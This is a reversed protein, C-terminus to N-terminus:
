ILIAGSCHAIRMTLEVETVLIPLCRRVRVETLRGDLWTMGETESWCCTLSVGRKDRLGKLRGTWKIEQQYGPHATHIPLRTPQPRIIVEKLQPLRCIAADLNVFVEHNEQDDEEPHEWPNIRLVLSVLPATRPILDLVCTTTPLMRRPGNFYRGNIEFDFDLATLNTWLNPLVADCFQQILEESTPHHIPKSNTSAIRLQSSIM